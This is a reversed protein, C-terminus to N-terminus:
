QLMVVFCWRKGHSSQLIKPWKYSGMQKTEEMLIRLIMGHSTLPRNNHNTLGRLLTSRTIFAGTKGWKLAREMANGKPKEKKRRLSGAFIIFALLNWQCLSHASPRRDPKKFHDGEVNFLPQSSLPEKRAFTADVFTYGSFDLDRFNGLDDIKNRLGSNQNIVNKHRM